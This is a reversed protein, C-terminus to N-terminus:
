DLEFVSVIGVMDEALENISLATSNLKQMNENTVTSLDRIEVARISVEASTTSQQEAAAAIQQTMDSVNAVSDDISSLATVVEGISGVLVDIQARGQTMAAESNQANKQVNGIMAEIESTSNQTNSALSRVEDAVVAFGRGQEGARAAEIAANLALLNTQDAIGKIVGLIGSISQISLSLEKVSRETEDLTLALQKIGDSTQHTTKSSSSVLTSAQQASNAADITREAVESASAQMQEIAAAVQDTADDQQAVALTTETSLVRLNKAMEAQKQASGNIKAIIERLQKAMVSIAAYIGTAADASMLSPKLNGAAITKSYESIVSPEGGVDFKINRVIYFGLSIAVIAAIIAMLITFDQTQAGIATAESNRLEILETENAIFDAVLGRIGDMSAKGKGAQAFAVVKLLSAPDSTLNTTRRLAIGPDAADRKWTAFLAEVKVLTRVQPPNDSVTTKLQAIKRNFSVEGSKYPELFADVGTVLFGRMGTEMDVVAAMILNAEGIVEHTHNVWANASLLSETNKYVVLAILLMSIIPISFGFILKRSLSLSSFSM